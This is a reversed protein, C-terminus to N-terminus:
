VLTLSRKPPKARKQQHSAAIKAVNLVIERDDPSLTRYLSLLLGEAGSSAAVSAKSGPFTIVKM